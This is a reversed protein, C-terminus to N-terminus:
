QAGETEAVTDADIADPLAACEQSCYVIRDGGEIGSECDEDCYWANCSICCASVACSSLLEGCRRCRGTEEYIIQDFGDCLNLVREPNLGELVIVTTYKPPTLRTLRYTGDKRKLMKMGHKYAARRARGINPNVQPSSIAVTATTSM